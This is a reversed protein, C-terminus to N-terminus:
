KLYEEIKKLVESLSFNSKILYDVAGMEKCKKIDSEQGLNSLIFVPINKLEEDKKIEELVEFGNKVPMILDLLMLDPITQKAKKLAEEGDSAYIVEYGARKLGDQYAISIFKDDEALLIKKNKKEIMNNFKTIRKTFRDERICSM